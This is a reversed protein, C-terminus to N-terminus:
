TSGPPPQRPGQPRRDAGARPARSAGGARAALPPGAALHDGECRWPVSEISCRPPDGSCDAPSRRPSSSSRLTMPSRVREVDVSERLEDLFPDRPPQRVHLHEPLHPAVAPLGGSSRRSSARCGRGVFVPRGRRGCSRGSAARGLAWLAHQQLRVAGPSADVLRETEAAVGSDAYAAATTSSATGCADRADGVATVGQFAVGGVLIAGVVNRWGQNPLRRLGAAVLGRPHRPGPRLDPRALPHEASGLPHLARRRHPVGHLRARVRWLRVPVGPRGALPGHVASAAVLAGLGAGVRDGGISWATRTSPGEM